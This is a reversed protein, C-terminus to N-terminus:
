RFNPDGAPHSKGVHSGGGVFPHAGVRRRAPCQRSIKPSTKMAAFQRVSDRDRIRIPITADRWIRLRVLAPRADQPNWREIWREAPPGFIESGAGERPPAAAAMQGSSGFAERRDAQTAARDGARADEKNAQITLTSYWEGEAAKTFLGNGGKCYWQLEDAQLNDFKHPVGQIAGNM